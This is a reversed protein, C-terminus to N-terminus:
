YQVLTIGLPQVFHYVGFVTVTLLASGLAFRLSNLCVSVIAFAMAFSLLLVPVLCLIDSTMPVSAILRLLWHNLPEPLLRVCIVPSFLLTGFAEVSFRVPGRWLIYGAVLIAVAAIIRRATFHSNVSPDITRGSRRLPL